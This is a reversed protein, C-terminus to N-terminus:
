AHQHASFLFACPQTPDELITVKELRYKEALAVMLKTSHHRIREDVSLVPERTAAVVPVALAACSVTAATGAFLARRTINM